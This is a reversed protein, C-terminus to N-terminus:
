LKKQSPHESAIRLREHIVKSNCDDCCLGEKIPQANNGYGESVKGCLCCVFEKIEYEEMLQERIRKQM